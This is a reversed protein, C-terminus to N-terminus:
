LGWMQKKQVRM